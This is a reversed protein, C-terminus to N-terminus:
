SRLEERAARVEESSVPRKSARRALLREIARARRRRNREEEVARMMLEAIVASKNRGAFAANFAEKVDDPVELPEGRSPKPDSPANIFNAGAAKGRGGGM